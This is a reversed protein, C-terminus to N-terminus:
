YKIADYHCFDDEEDKRRIKNSINIAARKSFVLSELLSNGALRNLGHVRNSSTEGIAYLGKLSAQGELDVQIGGMLYHQAPTVPIPEQMLDYGNELCHRYIAPFRKPITKADMTELSLSVYPLDDKIMQKRIAETLLDRPLLEDVFREKQKNLLIGGEGRVSESILFRRGSTPSYFSTPHIQVLHLNELAAGNKEALNMGDGTLHPYNTSHTYLGGIGGTALVVHEARCSYKEGSPGTIIVGKCSQDPCVLDVVPTFELIEINKRMRAAQLLKGSIEKGTLDEHHLTRASSHGGERTYHWQDNEKEFQVNFRVLDSIIETSSRIMTHVAQPCNKYHGAKMTDNFFSHYDEPNKLVSIGGQALFSNGRDAAEKTLILIRIDDPFNLSCFLGAIGTGVIIVDYQRNELFHNKM